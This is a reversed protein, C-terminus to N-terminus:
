GKLAAPFPTKDDIRGFRRQAVVQSHQTGADYRARAATGILLALLLYFDPSSITPGSLLTAVLIGVVAAASGHMVLRQSEMTAVRHAISIHHVISGIFWLLGLIGWVGISACLGPGLSSARNSGWGVGLGYTAVVERMSDADAATRDAYSSSQQKNLTGEVILSAEKAVEPAVVPVTVVCIAAIALAGVAAIAIRKKVKLKASSFTYVALMASMIVLTAYGTTSTSLLIIALGGAALVRPLRAKDGHFILWVAASVSGCLYSALAAPESFPGTLRILSGFTQNYLLSWGPNSLFFDTPFWIHFTNGAFQWASIAVVLLGSALYVDLLKRLNLGPHTLYQSATILLAADALLYIDQTFNGYNPALPALTFYGTLKQPWVYVEGEFLRPMIFSSLIAGVSVLAFPTLVGLVMNEAPYRHGLCWKLLFFGVFLATPVLAPMVGNSGLVIVAAAGFVAGIFVLSLMRAPM